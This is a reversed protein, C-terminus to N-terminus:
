EDPASAMGGGTDLDVRLVRPDRALAALTRADVDVVVAPIREFRRLVQARSRRPLASLVRDVQARVKPHLVPRPEADVGRKLAADPSLAPVAVQPRLMVFVRVRGEIAARQMAADAIKPGALPAASAPSAWPSMAFLLCSLIIRRM